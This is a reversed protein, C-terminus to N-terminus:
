SPPNWSRSSKVSSQHNSEGKLDNCENAKGNTAEKAVGSDDAGTDANAENAKGNLPTVGLATQM